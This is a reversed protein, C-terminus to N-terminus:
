KKQEPQRDAPSLVPRGYADVLVDEPVQVTRGDLTTATRWRRVVRTTSNLPGAAGSITGEVFGVPVGVVNGGVAGVGTGVARGLAPGPHYPSTAYGPKTCGAALFTCVAALGPSVRHIMKM